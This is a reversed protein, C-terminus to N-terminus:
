ATKEMQMYPVDAKIGTSQDGMLPGCQVVEGTGPLYFSVFRVHMLKSLEFNLAPICPCSRQLIGINHSLMRHWLPQKSHLVDM